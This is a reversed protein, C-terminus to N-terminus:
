AEQPNQCDIVSSWDENSINQSFTNKNAENYIRKKFYFPTQVRSNSYDIHFIPFHDSIDSYLIGNFVQDNSVSSTFINDILTASSATVRTPKTIIPLLSYSFMNDTFTHTECHSDINLIDINYDGLYYSIKNESNIKSVIEQFNENFIKMDTNPPRYVIGVIVNKAKGICKKDIEVFLTEM